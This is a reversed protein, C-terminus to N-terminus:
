KKEIPSVATASLSLAKEFHTKPLGKLPRGGLCTQPPTRPFKKARNEFSAANKVESITMEHCFNLAPGFNLACRRHRGNEGRSIVNEIKKEM